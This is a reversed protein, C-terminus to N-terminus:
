LYAYFLYNWTDPVGPLCWHICDAYHIPDAKQADSLPQGQVDTYVSVHGDIRYESLQTVNLVTVPVRMREVAEQVAQMMRPDSASGWYGRATVPATENYCMIGRNNGWDSSRCGM